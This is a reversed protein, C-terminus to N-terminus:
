WDSFASGEPRTGTGPKLPAERLNEDKLMLAFVGLMGM